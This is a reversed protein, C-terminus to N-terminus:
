RHSSDVDEVETHTIVPIAVKSVMALGNALGKKNRRPSTSFVPGPSASKSIRPRDGKLGAALPPTERRGVAACPYYLM